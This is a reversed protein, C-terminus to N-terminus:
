SLELVTWWDNVDRKAYGTVEQQGATLRADSARHSHLAANTAVHVLRV